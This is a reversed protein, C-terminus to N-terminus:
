TPLEPWSRATRRRRLLTGLGEWAAAGALGVLSAFYARNVTLGATSM